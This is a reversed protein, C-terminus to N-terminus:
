AGVARRGHRRLWDELEPVPKLVPSAAQDAAAAASLGSEIAVGRLRAIAARREELWVKYPHYKREGWPYAADIRAIVEAELMGETGAIAEAIVQRAAARRSWSV